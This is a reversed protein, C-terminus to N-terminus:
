IPIPPPEHRVNSFSKKGVELRYGIPAYFSDMTRWLGSGVSM